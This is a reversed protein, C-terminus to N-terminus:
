STRAIIRIASTAKGPLSATDCETALIGDPRLLPFLYFFGWGKAISTERCKVSIRRLPGLKEKSVCGGLPHQFLSDAHSVGQPATGDGCQELVMPVRAPRRSM